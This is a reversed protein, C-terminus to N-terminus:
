KFRTVWADFTVRDYFRLRWFSHVNELETGDVDDQYDEM